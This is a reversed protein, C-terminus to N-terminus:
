NEFKCKDPFKEEFVKLLEARTQKYNKIQDSDNLCLLQIESRLLANKIGMMNEKIEMYLYNCLDEVYNNTYYQYYHYIYQNINKHQRLKTVSNNLRIQCNKGIYDVSSKLMPSASHEPSVVEGQPYKELKLLDTIADLANRCQARFISKETYAIHETFKLHPKGDTFFDEAIMDNIPFIDDNFYIFQEALDPINSLFCEITCSNFAPLFQKPIFDKHYVVRVNNTDLWDPVQSPRSVILIVNRVFPMYKAIGRFLYRLTGWSRFRVPSPNYIGTSTSFDLMWNRDSADVYPIIIDIPETNKGEPRIRTASKMLSDTVNRMYDWDYRNEAAWTSPCMGPGKYKFSTEKICDKPFDFAKDPFQSFCRSVFVDDEFGQGKEADLDPMDIQSYVSKSIALLMLPCGTRRIVGIGDPHEDITNMYVSPDSTSIMGDDDLMILYDYSSNLFKQRLERRAGLIGLKDYDYRTINNRIKPLEYDKWNQAIILIDIDPWLEDLKLLLETCRRSREKRASKHYDSDPEPFYSIIGFTKKISSPKM